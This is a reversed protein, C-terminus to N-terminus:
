LLATLQARIQNDYLPNISLTQSTEQAPSLGLSVSGLSAFQYGVGLRLDANIDVDIGLGVGWSLNTRTRSTFPEMPIVQVILPTERYGYAHNFSGGVEGSLYLHCRSHYNSLLKGMATIRSSQVKYRYSFNDFDSLGLEWRHGQAQVPSNYYGILGLQWSLEAYLTREFSLGLGVSGSPKFANNGTYYDRYPELLMLSQNGNMRIFDAGISVITYVNDKMILPATFPYSAGSVSNVLLALGYLVWRKKMSAGQTFCERLRQM